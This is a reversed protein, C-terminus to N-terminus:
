RIPPPSLRSGSEYIAGMVPEDVLADFKIRPAVPSQSTTTPM